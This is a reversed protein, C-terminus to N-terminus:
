RPIDLSIPSWRWCRKREFERSELLRTGAAKLGADCYGPHCVLEWIGDPLALLTQRLIEATMGGTALVGLSGDTTVMGIHEVAELFYSRQTDPRARCVPSQARRDLSRRREM